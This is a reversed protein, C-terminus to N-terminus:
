GQNLTGLDLWITGVGGGRSSAQNIYHSIRKSNQASGQARDCPVSGMRNPDLM